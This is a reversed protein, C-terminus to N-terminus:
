EHGRLLNITVNPLRPIDILVAAQEEFSARVNRPATERSIGLDDNHRNTLLQPGVVLLQKLESYLPEVHKKAASEAFREPLVLVTVPLRDLKNV